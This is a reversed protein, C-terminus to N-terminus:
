YSILVRRFFDMINVRVKWPVRITGLFIFRFIDSKIRHLRTHIQWGAAELRIDHTICYEFAERFIKGREVIQITNFLKERLCYYGDSYNSRYSGFIEFQWPNEGPLLMIKLHDRQWFGITTVRYPVGRKYVGFLTNDCIEDPPVIPEYHLHLARKNEMFQFCKKVLAPRVKQILFLDDLMICVYKEPIQNIISLVDSSWDKSFGSLITKIRRDGYYRLTNSGLYIKYPCRKWYKNFQAFFPNWLSSYKDCSLVVIACNRDTTM